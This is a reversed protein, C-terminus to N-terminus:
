DGEIDNDADEMFICFALNASTHTVSLWPPAHSGNYADYLNWSSETSQLCVLPHICANGAKSPAAFLAKSLSLPSGLIHTTIATICYGHCKVCHQESRLGHVVWDSIAHQEEPRPLLEQWTDSFNMM